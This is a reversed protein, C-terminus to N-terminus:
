TGSQVAKLNRLVDVLKDMTRMHRRDVAYFREDINRVTDKREITEWRKSARERGDTCVMAGTRQSVFVYALPQEKHADYKSVTDVFAPLRNYPWDSPSTFTVGRSKVEIRHGDVILDLTDRFRGATKISGRIELEPMSVDFGHQKFFIYPILQWGYGRELMEFFLEDNQAWPIQKSM